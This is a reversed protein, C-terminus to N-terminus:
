SHNGSTIYLFAAAKIRSHEVERLRRQACYLCKGNCVGSIEIYTASSKQVSRKTNSQSNQEQKTSATARAEDHRGLQQLCIARADQLGPFGPLIFSAAELRTLIMSAYFQDAIKHGKVLPSKGWSRRFEGKHILHIARQMDYGVQKGWRTRFCRLIQEILEARDDENFSSDFKIVNLTELAFECFPLTIGQSENGPDVAPILYNNYEEFTSTARNGGQRRSFLLEPIRIFKGLLALESLIIHDFGHTKARPWRVQRLVDGRMLGYLVNCIDLNWLVSLFREKPTEHDAKIFDNMATGLSNGAEDISGALPYCIVVSPDGALVPICASVMAKERVDDSSAWMFYKGSSAELVRRFNRISGQNESYRYYKIRNDMEAYHRCIEPTRDDSANDSIIFEFDEFDQHLVSEIAEALHDEGNYVPMGVSVMPGSHFRQTKIKLM